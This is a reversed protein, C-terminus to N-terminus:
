LRHIANVDHDKIKVDFKAAIKEFIDHLIEDREYLIGNLIINNKRSYQELEDM